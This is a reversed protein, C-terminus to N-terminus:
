LSIKNLTFNSNYKLIGYFENDPTSIYTVYGYKDFIYVIKNANNGGYFGAIINGDKDITLQNMGDSWKSDVYGYNNSYTGDSNIKILLGNDFFGPPINGVYNGYRDIIKATYSQKGGTFIFNGSQDIALANFGSGNGGDTYDLRVNWSYNGSADYKILASSYEKTKNFTGQLSGNVYVSFTSYFTGFDGTGVLISVEDSQTIQIDRSYSPNSGGGNYFIHSYWTSYVGSSNFKVIYMAIQPTAPIDTATGNINAASTTKTSQLYVNGSSDVAVSVPQNSSSGDLVYSNWAHTHNSNIKMVISSLTTPATSPITAVISGSTTIASTVLKTLTIYINNTSDLYIKHSRTDPIIMYWNDYTGDLTIRFLLTTTSSPSFSFVQSGTKDYMRTVGSSNTTCILYIYSSNVQIYNRNFDTNTVRLFYGGYVCNSYLKTVVTTADSPIRVLTDGYKDYINSYNTLGYSTYVHGFQDTKISGIFENGPSSVPTKWYTYAPPEDQQQSFYTSTTPPLFYLPKPVSFYQNLDSATSNINGFDDLIFFQYKGTDSYKLVGNNYMNLLSGTTCTVNLMFKGNTSDIIPNVDLVSGVFSLVYKVVGYKNIKLVFVGNGSAFTFGSLAPTSASTYGAVLYTNELINGVRLKMDLTSPTCAVNVNWERTNTLIDFSGISYGGSTSYTNPPASLSSTSTYAYAWACKGEQTVHVTTKPNMNASSLVSMFSPTGNSIKVLATRATGNGFSTTTVGSANISSSSSEVRISAVIYTSVTDLNDVYVKTASGANFYNVASTDRNVIVGQHLTPVSYGNVTINYGYFGYVNSDQSACTNSNQSTITYLSNMNQDYKSIISGPGAFGNTTVAVPVYTTFTYNKNEDVTFTQIDTNNFIVNSTDFTNGFIYHFNQGDDIHTPWNGSSTYVMKDLYMSSGRFKFYCLTDSFGQASFTVNAYYETFLSDVKQFIISDQTITYNPADTIVSVNSVEYPSSYYVTISGAFDTYSIRLPFENGTSTSTTTTDLLMETSKFMLHSGTDKQYMFNHSQAWITIEYNAAENRFLDIKFFSNEHFHTSGSPINTVRPKECLSYMYMPERLHTGYRKMPEIYRLYYGSLNFREKEGFFLTVNNIVDIYEGTSVDKVTFFLEYVAGVAYVHMNVSQTTGSVLTSFRQVQKIKQVYPTKPIGETIYYDVLLYGKLEVNENLNNFLIRVKPPSEHIFFGDDNTCQFPLKMYFRGGGPSNICLLNDLTDTKEIPVKFNNEVHVFEGYITEIIEGDTGSLFDVRDVIREGLTNPTDLDLVLRINKIMNGAHPLNVVVDTGYFIKIPFSVKISQSCKREM